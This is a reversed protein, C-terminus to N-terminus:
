RKGETVFDPYGMKKKLEEFRIDAHLSRLRYDALLWSMGPCHSKYARDLYEFARDNDGLGAYASALLYGPDMNKRSLLNGLEGIKILAEERRGSLGLVFALECVSNPSERVGPLDKVKKIQDLAEAHLGNLAYATALSMIDGWGPEPESSLVNRMEELGEKYRGFLLFSLAFQQWYIRKSNIKQVQEIHQRLFAIAEDTKGTCALIRPYLLRAMGDGPKLDLAKKMEYEAGRFDWDLELKIAALSRHGEALNDDLRLAQQAAERAKPFVAKHDALSEAGLQYLIHAKWAHALALSPDIDIANQFYRLCDTYVQLETEEPGPNGYRERGKLYADYAEPNVRRDTVLLTREAPTVAVRIGSVIAQSLDSQIILIESYEREMTDAWLIKNNRFPDVLRATLRVREGSKLVSAEVLAKVKLDAAIEKLAKGSNKYRMVDQRSAVNLAAVKGLDNIILETLSNAFYDQNPDGSDNILPLIAISDLVERQEPHLVFVRLVALAALVLVGAIYVYPRRIGLIRGRLLGGKARLPKMGEALARLDELMEGMSQYRDSPNKELAKAIVREMGPATWPKTKRIQSPARHVISFLLSAENDGGFPLQGAVMEFLVVGLSWIDTRHDVIQGQAQEPSMYSVTGMTKAEKTILSAGFVKALGFDMVKATGKDTVMINGPKIDRHIIGKEHAEKLGEAVQIAINLAEAQDLAGKRIKDKLSQGEVYEMAIFYQNEQEGIEHVTCIHPHSLAAAAKAERIFRERAEPNETLEAPLFKLAVIRELTIDEAKYVVGMGGRGIPEIIRYKGALVNGKDIVETPQVVTM